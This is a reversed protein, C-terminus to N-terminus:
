IPCDLKMLDKWKKKSVIIISLLLPEAVNIHLLNMMLKMLMYYINKVWNMIIIVVQGLM